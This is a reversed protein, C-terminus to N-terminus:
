QYNEKKKKRKMNNKRICSQPLDKVNSIGFSLFTTETKYFSSVAKVDVNRPTM